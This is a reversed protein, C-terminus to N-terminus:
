KDRCKPCLGALQLSHGTLRFGTAKEVKIGLHVAAEEIVCSEVEAIHGCRECVIHHHHNEGSEECAARCYGYRSSRDESQLRTLLNTEALIELNRYVTVLDAKVNGKSLFEMVEAATLACGAAETTRLIAERCPTARLGKNRLAAKFTM